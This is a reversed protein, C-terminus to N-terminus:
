REPDRCVCTQEVAGWDRWGLQQGPAVVCARGAGQCASESDVQRTKVAAGPPFSGLGLASTSNCTSPSALPLPPSTSPFQAVKDRSGLAVWSVDEALGLSSWRCWKLSSVLAERVQDHIPIVQLPQQVVSGVRLLESELLDLHPGVMQMDLMKEPSVPAALESVVHSSRILLFSTSIYICVCM